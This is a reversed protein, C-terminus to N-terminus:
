WGSRGGDRACKERCIRDVADRVTRAMLWGVTTATGAYQLEDGTGTCAIVVSDTSTGAALDGEPTRVDWAVLTLAKAETVTIVANVMAAAALLGDVLVIANITGPPPPAPPTVGASAVNSLGVSVVAAVTLGDCEAVELVAFQTEAATMLGVAGAAAGCRTAFAALEDEPRDGDYDKDVHVNVIDRAATFGGGLVASSLIRLPRASSVRVAEADITVSVGDIAPQVTETM